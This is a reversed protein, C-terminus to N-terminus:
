GAELKASLILWNSASVMAKLRTALKGSREFLDRLDCSAGTSIRTM